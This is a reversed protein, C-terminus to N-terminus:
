FLMVIIAKFLNNKNFKKNNIQNLKHKKYQNLNNKHLKQLILMNKIM